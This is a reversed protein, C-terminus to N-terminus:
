FPQWGSVTLFYMIIYSFVMLTAVKPLAWKLWKNFPLGIMALSGVTWGLMPSIMNTFGDGYQFAQVGLEPLMGLAEYIPQLIPILIAVKASASPILINIIGIVFTIGVSAVGRSLGMLPQTLNYVITHLINGQSLISSMVTALGIVFVVFAMDSCGKAFTKGLNEFSFGGVLGIVIGVVFNVAGVFAYTSYKVGQLFFIPFLIIFLYQGIYLTLVAISRGSLKVEKLLKAEEEASVSMNDPRWGEDWMLSKTPDKRIKKVYSLLFLLGVIMFFNMSIFMTGFTGYVKVGMMLQSTMQKTPGTGFGLLTAFTSIAMAVVPDLKLKKAFLIGIPVIAIMADSGGFAGLYVMVCFVASILINESSNRLKYMSWDLLEDIAGTGLVIAVMAGGMLVLYGIAGSSVLGPHILMLMKIPSVPTQADLYNFQDGLIKGTTPDTAFQGAPIIYTALSSILLLGIMIWLLHPMKFQKKQKQETKVSNAM